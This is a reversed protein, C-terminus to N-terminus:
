TDAIKKQQQQQQGVAAITTGAGARVGVAVVPEGDEDFEAWQFFTCGERGPVKGTQCMWFYRGWNEKKRQVVRLVGPVGCACKPTLRPHFAPRYDRYTINIRRRGALPHPDITPAPAVSHKWEEQMEAHMVLLSNHPLHIAIQGENTEPADTTDPPNKNSNTNGDPDTDSPKPVIRRVRFERTVGLSLSGIIPRPGLYTLQDSHWGVNQEPGNYCNVCAVNPVWPRPSQHKLKKGGHHTRIRERIEQNVANQVRAKVKELQPTLKRVDTLKAGNYVYEFKQQNMEYDSGVFFGSTHPSSVVNDFLKFTIQEFTESEHLLEALLDNADQHPLFNHIVTCPTHDSIDKPDFLHITAGKRSLLRAKKVLPATGNTTPPAATANTAAAAAAFSRLSTQAHSGPVVLRRPKSSAARLSELTAQVSGDHALLIDLLSEQDLDPHLSSLLALKVDTSEDGDGAGNGSNRCDLGEDFKRKKRTVFADM